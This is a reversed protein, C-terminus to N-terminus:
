PQKDGSLLGATLHTDRAEAIRVEPACDLRRRNGSRNTHGEHTIEKSATEWGSRIEGDSVAQPPDFM